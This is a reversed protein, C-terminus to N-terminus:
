AGIEPTVEEIVKYTGLAGEPSMGILFKGIHLTTPLPVNKVMEYAKQVKEIDDDMFLTTHFKYDTDYPHLGIGFRDFLVDNLKDHLIRMEDSEAMRIWVIEDHHEIGKVSVEFPKTDKYIGMVTDKVTRSLSDDIYFSIKLSIHFPLTFNSHAFGISNEAKQAAAKIGGLQDDVDIGVWIYM